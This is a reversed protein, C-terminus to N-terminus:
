IRTVEVATRGKARRALKEDFTVFRESEGSSAVHLADAFDFGGAFLDLAQKVVLPEELQVNEMGALRRLADEIDRPAFDYLSRLVWETELFVTRSIWVEENRMLAAARATQSAHDRTIFRILINTDVSLM